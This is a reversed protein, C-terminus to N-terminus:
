NSSLINQDIWSVASSVRSYVGPLIVSEREACGYGWSVVGVLVDMSANEGKIILPGGSDGQCSDNTSGGEACIVNETIKINEMKGFAEWTQYAVNCWFNSRTEVVTEEPVDSTYGTEQMGWGMVTLLADRIPVDPDSNLTVPSYISPTDLFLLLFDGDNTLNNYFPYMVKQDSTINYIERPTDESMSLNHLGLMVVDIYDNCHAATLIVSPAILTGGCVQLLEGTFYDKYHLSALYPYRNREVETGGHIFRTDQAVVVHSIIFLSVVLFINHGFEMTETRDLSGIFL